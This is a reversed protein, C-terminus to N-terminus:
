IVGALGDDEKQGNANGDRQEWTRVAAKWNKMPSKGVLWGKSDYFNVFREPDISNKRETCYERVEEVTPSIFRPRPPKDAAKKERDREEKINPVPIPIPIPVAQNAKTQKIQEAFCANAQNAQKQKLQTAIGGARGALSKKARKEEWKESDRDISARVFAFAMKLAGSFQPITGFESYDFLSLFLKGREEDTLLELPARLDHYLVFASKENKM